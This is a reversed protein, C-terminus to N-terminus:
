QRPLATSRFPTETIYHHEHRMSRSRISTWSAGPGGSALVRPSTLSPLLALVLVLVLALLGPLRLRPTPFSFVSGASLPAEILQRWYLHFAARM